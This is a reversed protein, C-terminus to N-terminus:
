SSSTKMVGRPFTNLHFTMRKPTALAGARNWSSIFLIKDIRRLLGLTCYSIDRPAWISACMSSTHRPVLVWSSWRIRKPSNKATQWSFWVRILSCFHSNMCSVM